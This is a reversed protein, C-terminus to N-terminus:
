SWKTSSPGSCCNSAVSPTFRGFDDIFCLNWKLVVFWVHERVGTGAESDCWIDFIIETWWQESKYIVEVTFLNSFLKIKWIVLCSVSPWSPIAVESNDVKNLSHPLFPGWTGLKEQLDLHDFCSGQSITYLIMTLCCIWPWIQGENSLQHWWSNNFIM